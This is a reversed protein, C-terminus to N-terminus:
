GHADGPATHTGSWNVNVTSDKAQIVYSSNVVNQYVQPAQAKVQDVLVALESHAMADEVLEGDIAEGLAAINKASDPTDEVRALERSGALRKRVWAVLRGLAGQSADIAEDTVHEVATEGAKQLAGAVLGAVLAGTIPDMGVAGSRLM